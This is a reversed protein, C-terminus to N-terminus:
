DDAAFEGIFQNITHTIGAALKPLIDTVPVIETLGVQAFAVQFIINAEAKFDPAPTALTIRFFEVDRDTVTM